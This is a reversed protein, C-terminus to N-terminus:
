LNNTVKNLKVDYYNRYSLDKKQKKWAGHFSKWRSHTRESGTELYFQVEIWKEFQPFGFNGPTVIEFIMFNKDWCYFLFYLIFIMWIDIWFKSFWNKQLREDEELNKKGIKKIAELTFYWLCICNIKMLKMINRFIILYYPM